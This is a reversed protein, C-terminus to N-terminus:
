KLLKAVPLETADKWLSEMRYKDRNEPTFLHVMV